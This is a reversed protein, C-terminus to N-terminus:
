VSDKERETRRRRREVEAETPVYELSLPPRRTVRRALNHVRILTRWIREEGVTLVVADRIYGRVARPHLVQLAAWARDGGLRNWLFLVHENPIPRSLQMTDLGSLAEGFVLDAFARYTWKGSAIVDQYAREVIEARLRDEKMAALVDDLNSFDRKLEIYHKGPELAGGYHGEILVQCTRTMVAEFHRPGLLRYGFQGDMGPFCAAEVEEFTAGEHARMYDRVRQAITGDWDFVGSGGEVGITYKCKLLFDFWSDGLLADKYDSSIDTVLGYEPARERFARGIEGKLLGHRGYFPYTDWSRYGVDIPRGGHRRAREATTRVTAEDVYGTLVTRFRVADLDLERYIQPWEPTSAPTFVHTVGFDRSLRCLLDAHAQEDHPVIAKRCRLDRIFAIREVQQEFQEPVQRVALFTYHFIVLDPDLTRLYKPVTPRATNLYFVDHDSFRRFGYLHSNYTSRWQGRPARHYVILVRAM